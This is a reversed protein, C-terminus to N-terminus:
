CQESHDRSLGLIASMAAECGTCGLTHGHQALEVSNRIYIRHPKSPERNIPPPFGTNVQLVDM